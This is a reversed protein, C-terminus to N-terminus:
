TNTGSALPVGKSSPAAGLAHSIRQVRQEASHRQQRRRHQERNLRAPEHQHRHLRRAVFDVAERAANQEHQLRDVALRDLAGRERRRHAHMQHGGPVHRGAHMQALRVLMHHDFQAPVQTLVQRGARLDGDVIQTRRLQPHQDRALRVPDDHRDVQRRRRAKQDFRHRHQDGPQDQRQERHPLHM